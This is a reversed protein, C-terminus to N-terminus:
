ISRLYILPIYIIIEILAFPKNAYLIPLNGEYLCNKDGFSIGISIIKLVLSFNFKFYSSTKSTLKLILYKEM